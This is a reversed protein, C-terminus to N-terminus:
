KDPSWSARRSTAEHGGRSVAHAPLTLHKWTQGVVARYATAPTVGFRKALTSYGVGEGSLRRMEVVREDTLKARPNKAGASRGKHLGLEAAHANNEARTCWCLNGPRCDLKKGSLHNVVHEDTPPAGHFAACVLRHLYYMRGRGRGATLRVVVYGGANPSGKLIRGSRVNQVRAESSVRYKGEYGLVDRWVEEV